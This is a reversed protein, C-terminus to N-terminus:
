SGRRSRGARWIAILVAVSAGALGGAIILPVISIGGPAASDIDALRYVRGNDSAIYLAGDHVVPSSLLYGPPGPQLAWEGSGLAFLRWAYVTGNADNTAAYVRDGAITPSASVPTGILSATWRVDGALTFTQVAGDTGFVGWGIAVTGNSVAPSAISGVLESHRWRVIGDTGVSFAEGAKTTFFVSDGAIAPSSAVSGNTAVFWREAGSDADLALLGYPASYTLDSPHFHGVLGVYLVHDAIAASSLHVSSVPRSWVVGHTYLDIAVFSGDGGTENFTGVYVRGYAIRPSATIGSFQVDPQLTRNWLETGDSESLVHLRGDKGGVYIRTDYLTPSSAGAVDPNHWRLAGTKEDLAVFGTWTSLYVRGHALAPTATIEYAGTDYTWAVQPSVPGPGAAVGSGGLDYRFMEVPHREAPDPTADPRPGPWPQEPFNWPADRSLFWGSVMGDTVPIDAPGLDALDWRSVNWLLFHWYDPWSPRADGIDNVFPKAGFWTVNLDLGLEAAAEVTANWVNAGESMSLDAWVIRGTGFDVMVSVGFPAKGSAVFSGFASTTLIAVLIATPIWRM